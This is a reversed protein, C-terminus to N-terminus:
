AVWCLDRPQGSEFTNPPSDAQGWDAVPFGAGDSLWDRARYWKGLGNYNAELGHGNLGFKVVPNELNKQWNSEDSTM